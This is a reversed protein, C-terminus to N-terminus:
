NQADPPMKDLEEQSPFPVHIGFKEGLHRNLHDYVTDIEELKKLETTSKKRLLRWQAPYWLLYKVSDKDWDLEMKQKLVEQIPYGADNLADAVHQFWLHLSNQQQRSLRSPPKIDKILKELEQQQQPPELKSIKLLVKYIKSDTKM